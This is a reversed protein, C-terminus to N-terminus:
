LLHKESLLTGFLPSYKEIMEAEFTRYEEETIAGENLLKRAMSMSAQFALERRFEADSM